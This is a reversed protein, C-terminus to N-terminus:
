DGLIAGRQLCRMAQVLVSLGKSCYRLLGSEMTQKCHLAHPISNFHIFAQRGTFLRLMNSSAEETHEQVQTVTSSFWHFQQRGEPNDDLQM